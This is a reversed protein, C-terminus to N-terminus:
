NCWEIKVTKKEEDIEFTYVTNKDLREKLVKLIEFGDKGEPDVREWVDIHEHNM